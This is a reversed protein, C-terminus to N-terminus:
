TVVLRVSRWLHVSLAAHDVLLAVLTEWFDLEMPSLFLQLDHITTVCFIWLVIQLHVMLHVWHSRRVVAKASRDLWRRALTAEVVWHTQLWFRLFNAQWLTVLGRLQLYEHAVLLGDADVLRRLVVMLTLSSVQDIKSSDWPNAQLGRLWETSVAYICTDSCM